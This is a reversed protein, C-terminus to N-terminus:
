HLEVPSISGSSVRGGGWETNTDKLVHTSLRGTHQLEEGHQMRHSPLIYSIHVTPGLPSKAEIVYQPPVVRPALPGLSEGNGGYTRSSLDFSSSLQM